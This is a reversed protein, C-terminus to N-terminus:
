QFLMMRMKPFLTWSSAFHANYRPRPSIDFNVQIVDKKNHILVLLDLEISSKIGKEMNWKSRTHKRKKIAIHLVCIKSVTNSTAISVLRVM